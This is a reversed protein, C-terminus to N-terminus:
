RLLRFELVYVETKVTYKDVVVELFADPDDSDVWTGDNQSNYVSKLLISKLRHQDSSWDFHVYGENFRPRTTPLKYKLGVHLEKACRQVTSYSIDLKNQAKLEVIAYPILSKRKRDGESARRTGKM